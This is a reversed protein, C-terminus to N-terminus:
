PKHKNVETDLDQLMKQRRRLPLTVKRQGKDTQATGVSFKLSDALLKM